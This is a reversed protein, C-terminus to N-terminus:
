RRAIFINTFGRGHILAAEVTQGIVEAVEDSKRAAAGGLISRPPITATGLEQYEMVPDNSGVEATRDGILGARPQVSREISDRLEGTRLEPEDAPFGQRERDEMTAAALPAWAEFPGSEGQYTGVSDKAETQIIAAAHDLAHHEAEDVAVVIEALELLFADISGFERM